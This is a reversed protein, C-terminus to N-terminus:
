PPKRQKPSDLRREGLAQALQRRLQDRETRLKRIQENAAELRRLLSADSTRQRAPIPPSPARRTVDRLREIQQRIDSQAYLWSTSVGAQQAVAAFTIPTGAHDLERLARIAKARTLERRQRAAAIIGITNGTTDATTTDDARM